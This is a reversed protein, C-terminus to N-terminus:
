SLDQAPLDDIVVQAPTDGWLEAGIRRVAEVLDAGAPLLEGAALIPWASEAIRVPPRGTLKIVITSM